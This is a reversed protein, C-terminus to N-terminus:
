LLSQFALGTLMPGGYRYFVEQGRKIQQWDVWAPVANVEAWFAELIRNTTAHEQLLAYLDKQHRPQPSVVSDEENIVSGLDANVNTKRPYPRPSLRNLEQLAQDGLKDYSFKLHRAQDASLHLESLEFTYGWCTRTNETRSQFYYM